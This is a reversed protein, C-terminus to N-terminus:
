DWSVMIFQEVTLITDTKIRLTCNLGKGQKGWFADVKDDLDINLLQQLDLDKGDTCGLEELDLRFDTGISLGAQLIVLVLSLQPALHRLSM